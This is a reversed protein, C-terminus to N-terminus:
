TREGLGDHFLTAIERMAMDEDPGDAEIRVTAGVSATILMVAFINRARVRQGRAVISLNCRFRKAIAVIRACAQAHLGGPNAITLTRTQM